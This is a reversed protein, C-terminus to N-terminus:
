AQEKGGKVDLVTELYRQIEADVANMRKHLSHIIERAASLPIHPSVDYVRRGCRLTFTLDLGEATLSMKVNDLIEVNM